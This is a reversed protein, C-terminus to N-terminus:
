ACGNDARSGAQTRGPAGFSPVVQLERVEEISRAVGNDDLVVDTVARGRGTVGPAATCDSLAVPDLHHKCPEVAGSM